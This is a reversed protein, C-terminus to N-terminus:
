VKLKKPIGILLNELSERRMLLDKNSGFVANQQLWRVQTAPGYGKANKAAIRFVIAPAKTRDILAAGLTENSAVATNDPGSYIRVFYYNTTTSKRNNVTGEKPSKIAMCVSYELIKGSNMPADWTITAGNPTKAVKISVPAGPFGPTCTKFISVDSWEGRGCANIAAVRFKYATGPELNIKLKNTYDTLNDLTTSEHEDTIFASHFQKVKCTTGKIIGVDCWVPEDAKKVVPKTPKVMVSNVSEDDATENKSKNMDKQDTNNVILTNELNKIQNEEITYKLNVGSPGVHQSPGEEETSVESFEKIILNNLESTKTCLVSHQDSASNESKVVINPVSEIVLIDQQQTEYILNSHGIPVIEDKTEQILSEQKLVASEVLTEAKVFNEPAPEDVPDQQASEIGESTNVEVINFHFTNNAESDIQISIDIFNNDDM